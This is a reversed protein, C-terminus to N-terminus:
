KKRRLLQEMPASMSIEKVKHLNKKTNIAARRVQKFMEDHETTFQHPKWREYVVPEKSAGSKYVFGSGKKLAWKMASDKTYLVHATRGPFVGLPNIDGKPVWTTVGHYLAKSRFMLVDGPRYLFVLGLDPFVVYGGDFSGTCFTVCYGSDGGDMHQHVPQNYVLVHGTHFGPATEEDKDLASVRFVPRHFGEYEEPFTAVVRPLMIQQVYLNVLRMFRLSSTTSYGPGTMLDSSRVPVADEANDMAQEYWLRDLHKVGCPVFYWKAEPTPQWHKQGSKWQERAKAIAQHRAHKPLPSSQQPPIASQFLFTEFNQGHYHAPAFRERNDGRNNHRIDTEGVKAPFVGLHSQTNVAIFDLELASLGHYAKQKHDKKGEMFQDYAEESYFTM